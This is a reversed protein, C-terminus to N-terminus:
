ATRSVFEENENSINEGPVKRVVQASAYSEWALKGRLIASQKLLSLSVVEIPQPVAIAGEWAM